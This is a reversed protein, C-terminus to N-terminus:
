YYILKSFQKIIQRSFYIAYFVYCAFIFCYLIFIFIFIQLFPTDFFLVRYHDKKNLDHKLTQLKNIRFLEEAKRYNSSKNLKEITNVQIHKIM